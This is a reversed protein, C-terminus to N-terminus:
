EIPAFRDLDSVDYGRQKLLAAARARVLITERYLNLLAQEEAREEVSLGERQLQDHLEALRERQEVNLTARTAQWLADDDPEVM